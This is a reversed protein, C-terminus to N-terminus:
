KTILISLYINTSSYQYVSVGDRNLPPRNLCACSYIRDWFNQKFILLAQYFFCVFLCFVFFFSLSRIKCGNFKTRRKRMLDVTAACISFTNVFVWPLVFMYAKPKVVKCWMWNYKMVVVSVVGGGRGCVREMGSKHFIDTCM